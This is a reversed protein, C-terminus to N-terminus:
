DKLLLAKEDAAQSAPLDPTWTSPTGIGALPVPALMQSGDAPPIILGPHRLSQSRTRETRTVAVFARYDYKQALTLNDKARGLPKPEIRENGMAWWNGDHRWAVIAHTTYHELLGNRYTYYIVRNSQGHRQLWRSLADAYPACEGFEGRGPLSLHSVSDELPDAQAMGCGLLIFLTVLTKM